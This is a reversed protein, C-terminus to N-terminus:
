CGIYKLLQRLVYVNDTEIDNIQYVARFPLSIDMDM